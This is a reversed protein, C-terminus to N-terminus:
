GVEVKVSKGGAVRPVDIRLVGEHLKATVAAPDVATPLLFERRFAGHGREGVKVKGNAPHRRAKEGQVVLRAGDISVEITGRAVGPVDLFIQYGDEVEVVDIDPSFRHGKTQRPLVEAFVDRLFPDRSVMEELKHLAADSATM